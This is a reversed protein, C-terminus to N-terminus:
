KNNNRNILYAATGVASIATLATLAAIGSQGSKIQAIQKTANGIQVRLHTSGNPMKVRVIKRTKTTPPDNQFSNWTNFKDSLALKPNQSTYISNIDAIPIGGRAIPGHLRLIPKNNGSHRDIPFQGESLAFLALHGIRRM